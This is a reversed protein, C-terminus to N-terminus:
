LVLFSFGGEVLGQIVQVPRSWLFSVYEGCGLYMMFFSDEFWVWFYVSIEGRLSDDEVMFILDLCSVVILVTVM